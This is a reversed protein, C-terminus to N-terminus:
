GTAAREYHGPKTRKGFSGLGHEALQKRLWKAYDDEIEGRGELYDIIELAQEDTACRRIYDVVTPEYGHESHAMREAERASTRVANIKVTGKGDLEKSINPCKEKFEDKSREAM